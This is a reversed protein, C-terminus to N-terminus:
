VTYKEKEEVRLRMLTADILSRRPIDKPLCIFEEVELFGRVNEYTTYRINYITFSFVLLAFSFAM